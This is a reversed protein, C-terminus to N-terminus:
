PPPSWGFPGNSSAEVGRLPGFRGARQPGVAAGAKCPRPTGQRPGPWDTTAHRPPFRGSLGGQKVPSGLPLRHRDGLGLRYPRAKERARLLSRRVGRRRARKMGTSLDM